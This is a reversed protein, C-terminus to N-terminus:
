GQAGHVAAAIAHLDRKQRRPFLRLLVRLRPLRDDHCTTTAHLSRPLADRTRRRQERHNRRRKRRVIAFGSSCLNRRRTKKDQPTRNRRREATSLGGRPRSEQRLQPTHPKLSAASA